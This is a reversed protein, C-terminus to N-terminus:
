VFNKASNHKSGILLAFTEIKDPIQEEDLACVALSYERGTEFVRCSIDKKITFNEMNGEAYETHISFDLFDGASQLGPFFEVNRFPFALGVGLMKVFSEKLSWLRYFAKEPNEATKWYNQEEPTYCRSSIKDRIGAFKQVDIGVPCAAVACAAMTGSHSLSFHVGPFDVLMPKGKPSCEYRLPFCKESSLAAALTGEESVKTPLCCRSDEGESTEADTLRSMLMKRLLYEGALSRLRDEWRAAKCIQKKREESVLPLLREVTHEEWVPQLDLVGVRM